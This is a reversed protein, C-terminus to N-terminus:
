VILGGFAAHAPMWGGLDDVAQPNKLYSAPLNISLDVPGHRQLLYRWDEIASAIVFESLARFHPDNDDPLFAAPTVVGWSPHRVRVLAEAGCPPLSRADIKRQYWLELWGAKLAEAVDVAPKPPPEPPMLPAVCERLMLSTFPTSLQPLLLLGRELGLQRIAGSM